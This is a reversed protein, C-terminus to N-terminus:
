VVSKRDLEDPLEFKFNILNATYNFEWYLPANKLYINNLDIFANFIDIFAMRFQELDNNKSLFKLANSYSKIILGYVTIGIAIVTSLSTIYLIADLL